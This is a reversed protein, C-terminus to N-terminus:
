EFLKELKRLGAGSKWYLERAKAEKETQVEETFLVKFPSRHKTAPVQGLNHLNLRNDLDKTFGTYTRSDRQSQLIYVQYM